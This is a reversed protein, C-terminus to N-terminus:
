GKKIGTSNQGPRTEIRVVAELIVKRAWTSTDLFEQAAARDIRTRDQKTVRIQLFESKPDGKGKPM